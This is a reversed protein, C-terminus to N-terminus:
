RSFGISKGQFLGIAAIGDAGAALVADILEPKIGGLGLVPVSSKSCANKLKRLGLPSGYAAKSETPFIHGMLLYDAGQACAQRIEPLTHVSVGVLFDDPVWRRITAAPIGDSPLHVGDAGAALAIDARGNVLVRCGTDRAYALAIRTLDFLPRDELDKERIQVFDVGWEIARRICAILSKGQL